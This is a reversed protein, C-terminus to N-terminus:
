VIITDGGPLKVKWQKHICIERKQDAVKLLTTIIDKKAASVASINTRLSADLADYAKKWYEEGAKHIQAPSAM